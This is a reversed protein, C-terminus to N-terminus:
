LNALVFFQFALAAGLLATISVADLQFDPTNYLSEDQPKSSPTLPAAASITDRPRCYHVKNSDDQEQM